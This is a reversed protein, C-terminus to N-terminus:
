KYKKVFQIGEKYTSYLDSPLNEVLIQEKKSNIGDIRAFETNIISGNKVMSLNFNGFSENINYKELIGNKISIEGIIGDKNNSSIHIYSCKNLDRIKKFNNVFDLLSKPRTEKNQKVFQKIEEEELNEELELTIKYENDLKKRSRYLIDVKRYDKFVCLLNDDNLYIDGISNIHDDFINYLKYCDTKLQKAIIHNYNKSFFDTKMKTESYLTNFSFFFKDKNKDITYLAESFPISKVSDVIIEEGFYGIKHLKDCIHPEITKRITNLSKKKNKYSEKEKM